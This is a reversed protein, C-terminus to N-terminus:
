NMHEIPKKSHILLHALVALIKSNATQLKSGNVLSMTATGPNM